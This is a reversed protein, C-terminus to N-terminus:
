LWIIPKELPYAPSLLCNGKKWGSIIGWSHTLFPSKSHIGARLEQNTGNCVWKFNVPCHALWWTRLSGRKRPTSMGYCHSLAIDWLYGTKLGHTPWHTSVHLPCLQLVEAHISISHQGGRVVYCRTRCAACLQWVLVRAARSEDRQINTKWYIM